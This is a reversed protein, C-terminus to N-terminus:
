NLYNTDQEYHILKQYVNGRLKEHIENYCVSGYEFYSEVRLEIKRSQGLRQGM